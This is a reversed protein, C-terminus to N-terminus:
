INIMPYIVYANGRIKKFAYLVLCCPSKISISKKSDEECFRFVFNQTRSEREHKDNEFRFRNQHSSLSWCANMNVGALGSNEFSLAVGEM